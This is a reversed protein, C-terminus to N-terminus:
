SKAAEIRCLLVRVVEDRSRRDSVRFTAVQGSVGGAAIAARVSQIPTSDDVVLLTRELARLEDLTALEFATGFNAATYGRVDVLIADAGSALRQM